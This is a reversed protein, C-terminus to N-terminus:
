SESLVAVVVNYRMKERFGAKQGVVLSPMNSAWADWHATLGAAACRAALAAAALTGLGRNQYAEVTEVGVGCQGDSVYEATCWAAMTTEHHIVCWGFGQEFFRPRATWCSEIEAALRNAHLLSGADLLAPTVPQVRFGAPAALTPVAAADLALLVRERPVCRVGAFVHDITEDWDLSDPYVKVIGLQRATEAPLLSDRVFQRLATNVDALCAAGGLYLSHTTDWIWAARPADLDDVWAAAPSNGAIMAEIVFTLQPATFLPRLRSYHRFPLRLM